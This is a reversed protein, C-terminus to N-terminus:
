RMALQGGKALMDTVPHFHYICSQRLSLVVYCCVGFFIYRTKFFRSLDRCLLILLLLIFNIVVLVNEDIINSLINCFNEFNM